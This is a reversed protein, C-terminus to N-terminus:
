APHPMKRLRALGKSLETAASELRQKHTQEIARMERELVIRQDRPLDKWAKHTPIHATADYVTEFVTLDLSERRPGAYNDLLVKIRIAGEIPQVQGTALSQALFEIDVALRQELELRSTKETHTKHNVRRWLVTAYAALGLIIALGALALMNLITM